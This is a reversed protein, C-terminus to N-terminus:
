MAEFELAFDVVPAGHTLPSIALRDVGTAALERVADPGFAGSIETLVRGRAVEVCERLQAPNLADFTVVDAGADMAARVDAASRCAVSIAADAPALERARRVAGAIDGSMAAVHNERIQVRAARAASTSRRNGARVAYRELARLGPTTNPGDCIEVGTGYAARVYRATLTAVGSLRQLFSLAVREASLMARALGSIRFIVSGEDVEDGDEADVRIAVNPDLIRFAAIALPVGAIVGARRAVITGHARRTSVVCAIATVDSFAGDEHLAARVCADLQRPSLPFGLPDDTAVPTGELPTVARSTRRQGARRDALRRESPPQQGRNALPREGPFRPEEPTRFEPINM